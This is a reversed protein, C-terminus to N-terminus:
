SLVLTVAFPLALTMTTTLARPVDSPLELNMASTKAVAVASNLTRTIAYILVLSM